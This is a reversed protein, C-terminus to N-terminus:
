DLVEFRKRAEREVAEFEKAARKEDAELEARQVGRERANEYYFLILENRKTDDTIRAYRAALFDDDGVELGHEALFRRTRDAEFEPKAAAAQEFNFWGTNTQYPHSGLRTTDEIAFSYDNKAKPLLSEFQAIFLARVHGDKGARAFVFREVEAVDKLPFTLRGVYPLDRDVRIGMPPNTSSVITNGAISRAALANPSPISDPAAAALALAVALLVIM